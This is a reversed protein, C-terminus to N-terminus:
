TNKAPKENSRWDPNQEWFTNFNCTRSFFKLLLFTAGFNQINKTYWSIDPLFKLFHGFIRLFQPTM